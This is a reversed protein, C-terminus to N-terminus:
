TDSIFLRPSSAIVLNVYHFHGRGRTPGWSVIDNNFVVGYPWCVPVM